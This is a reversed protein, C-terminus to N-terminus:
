GAAGRAHVGTITVRRKVRGSRACSGRHHGFMDLPAQCGECTAKTFQLPLRLRELLLTRFLHPPMTFEPTTPCHALAVGANRGSHSQLHARRSATRGLLMTMKRFYADSISSSWYQWGHQWEGSEGDVAVPQRAGKQIEVWSPRWHFGERDLREACEHVQALCGEQPVEAGSLTEVVLAAITPNRQSIMHLADAWSAWYAAAACRGASSLGLGGMRMPLSAIQEADQLEDATGPTKGLLAVATRWIGADHAAAYERSFEPPLTRIMHNARPSASQLLLQWGCQLEPVRPIADWLRQEDDIRTQLLERTFQAGGIPTGLVKIGEAQWAEPGLQQVDPPPIGGRNWVRTKGQHPRIGAVRFLCEALTDFIAKVREPRCLAYVDDLFACIQKGHELTAAVEESAGQIGISFLLPMLPDGQEGGEAQLQTM